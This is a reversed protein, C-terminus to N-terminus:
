PFVLASALISGIYALLILLPALMTAALVLLLPLTLSRM